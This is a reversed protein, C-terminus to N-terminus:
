SVGFTVYQLGGHECSREVSEHALHINEAVLTQERPDAPMQIDVSHRCKTCTYFSHHTYHEADRDLSSNRDVIKFHPM